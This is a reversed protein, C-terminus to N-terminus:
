PRRPTSTCATAPTSSAPGACGRPWTGRGRPRMGCSSSTRPWVELNRLTDALSEGKSVSSGAAAVNVTDASLRKEAIEFSTRTRTSPEFFLNVVTHGRLAPVKKISRMGVEQMAEATDLILLIEDSSLDGVSLLDKTRLHVPLELPPPSDAARRAPEATPAM